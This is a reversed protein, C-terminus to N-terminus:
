LLLPLVQGGGGMAGVDAAPLIDTESEHHPREAYPAAFLSVGDHDIAFLPMFNPLDRAEALRSYRNDLVLWRGEVRVALVAHDERVATDRVLLMKIDADPVGSALLVAFKAIAYDECDGMGSTLTEFPSSWLDAVGHQQFDSVYRIAQNVNRNVIEVRSRVDAADASRALAVVKSSGPVCQDADAKCAAILKAEAQMKAEVGRWKTWLLGEPARFTFLGFPEESTAPAMVAESPSDSLVGSKDPASGTSTVGASAVGASAVQVGDPQSRSQRDHKALVANITFFRVQPPMAASFSTDPATDPTDKAQFEAVPKKVRSKAWAGGCGAATLSVALMFGLARPFARAQEIRLM